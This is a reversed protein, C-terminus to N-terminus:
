AAAGPLEAALLDALRMALAVATLTPNAEGSTRFVASGAIFLNAAGFVRCDRDVVGDQATGGMRTTGIQHHGDYCQALIHAARESEPLDWSVRGAGSRQLWDAFLSLTRLLPAADAATYRLDIALRPLGLADAEQGLRVRSDPNPLHEAHFRIAYRRGANRRFFGPKRPRAVYHRWLFDPMFLATGPLDRILNVIHPWRKWGEGVYHQRISEAVIRRGLPPVSLALFALSLVGNRHAPDRLLPSDPWLSCNALGERLQLAASPTFRRRVYTRDRDQFYDIGADLAADHLVMEGALGYLHGMYYRGLPGDPGGFRAPAARQAALLLRATELGGAALVVARPVIRARAAGPGHVVLGRVRGDPGFELGTVTAQLRLAIAASRRLAQGHMRRFSPERSWREIRDFAFDGDAARGPLARTFEPAGCGIHACARAYHPAVDDWGIPWGSQPVAPRAAFDIPEYAVCRGGWLSSSGGLSREVAIDMAVHTRPDAIAADSLRQIAADRHLAGSELLLVQRGQRALELALAIGVPGAGVVCIDPATGDLGDVGTAIMRGM